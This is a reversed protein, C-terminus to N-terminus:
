IYSTVNFGMETIKYKFLTINLCNYSTVGYKCGNVATEELLKAM